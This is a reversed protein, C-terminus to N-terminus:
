RAEASEILGELRAINRILDDRFQTVEALQRDAELLHKQLIKLVERKGRIGTEDEFYLNIVEGIEDLSLGLSKLAAIKKLRKLTLEDYYRYGRGERHSPAILGKQEYFHITRHSLEARRALEGIKM